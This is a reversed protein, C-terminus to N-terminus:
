ARKLNELFRLAPKGRDKRNEKNGHSLTFQRGAIEYVKHRNCDILVAGAQKLKKELNSM